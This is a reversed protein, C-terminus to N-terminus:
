GAAVSCAGIALVWLVGGSEVAAAIGAGCLLGTGFDSLWSGGQIEQLATEQLEKM